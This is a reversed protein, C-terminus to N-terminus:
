KPAADPIKLFFATGSGSPLPSIYGLEVELLSALRAVILLGLGSGIELDHGPTPTVQQNFIADRIHDPIGPGDDAVTLVVNDQDRRAEIRIQSNAYKIANDVLNGLLQLLREPDTHVWLSDGPSDLQIALGNAVARPTVSQTLHTLISALDVPQRTASYHSANLRALSILDSILHEIRGSERIITRAATAPDEVAEDVIAEAFGRISTLPTKLDHSIALLFTAQSASATKLSSIMRELAGALNALDRERMSNRDLDIALDGDAVRDAAAVLGLLSRSIHRTYRDAVFIALGASVIAVLIVFITPLLISPLPRTLVLAYLHTTGAVTRSFPYAIYAVNGSTGTLYNGRLLSATAITSTTLPHPLSGIVRGSSSIQIVHDRTIGRISALKELRAPKAHRLGIAATEAIKLLYQQTQHNAVSRSIVITGAGSAAVAMLATAVIGM